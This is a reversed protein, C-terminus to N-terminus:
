SSYLASDIVSSASYCQLCLRERMPLPLGSDEVFATCYRPLRSLLQLLKWANRGVFVAPEANNDGLQIKNGVLHSEKERLFSIVLDSHRRNFNVTAIRALGPFSPDQECLLTDDNKSLFGFHM